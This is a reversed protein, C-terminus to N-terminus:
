KSVPRVLNAKPQISLACAFWHQTFGATEDNLSQIYVDFDAIRQRLEQGYRSYDKNREIIVARHLPTELSTAAQIVEEADCV